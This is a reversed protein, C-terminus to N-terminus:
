VLQVLRHDSVGSHPVALHLSLPEDPGEFFVFSDGNFLEPAAEFKFIYDVGELDLYLLALELLALQRTPTLARGTAERLRVELGVLSLGIGGVDPALHVVIEHANCWFHQVVEASEVTDPQAM